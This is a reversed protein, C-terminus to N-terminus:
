IAGADAARRRCAVSRHVRWGRAGGHAEHQLVSGPSQEGAAARVRMEAEGHVEGYLQVPSELWLVRVSEVPAAQGGWPRCAKSAGGMRRSAWGPWSALGGERHAERRRWARAGQACRDRACLGRGPIAIFALM